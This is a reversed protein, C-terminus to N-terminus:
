NGETMPCHFDECGEAEERHELAQGCRRCVLVGLPHMIPYEEAAFLQYESM